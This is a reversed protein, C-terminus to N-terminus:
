RNSANNFGTANLIERMTRQTTQPHAQRYFERFIGYKRNGPSHYDWRDLVVDAVSESSGMAALVCSGVMFRHKSYIATHIYAVGIVPGEPPKPCGDGPMVSVPFASAPLSRLLFDPHTSGYVKTQRHTRGALSVPDVTTTHRTGHGTSPDYVAPEIGQVRGLRVTKTKRHIWGIVDGVEIPLPKVEEKVGFWTETRVKM